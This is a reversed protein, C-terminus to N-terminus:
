YYLLLHPAEENTINTDLEEKEVFFHQTINYETQIYNVKYGCAKSGYVVNRDYNIRLTDYLAPENRRTTLILETQNVEDIRLSVKASDIPGAQAKTLIMEFNGNAEKRYVILSDMRAESAPTQNQFKLYLQPTKGDLCIDDEECSAVLTMISLIFIFYKM